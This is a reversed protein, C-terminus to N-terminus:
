FSSQLKLGAQRRVSSLCSAQADAACELLSGFLGPPESRLCRGRLCSLGARQPDSAAAEVDALEMEQFIAEMDSWAVGVPLLPEVDSRIQALVWKLAVPGGSKALSQLFELPDPEKALQKLDEVSLLQLTARVDEWQVQEPLWQELNPQLAAVAFKFAFAEHSALLNLLETPEELATRLHELQVSSLHAVVQKAISDVSEQTNPM